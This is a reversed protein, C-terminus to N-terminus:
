GSDIWIGARYMTADENVQWFSLTAISVVYEFPLSCRERSEVSMFNQYADPYFWAVSCHHLGHGWVSRSASFPPDVAFAAFSPFSLFRVQFRILGSNSLESTRFARYTASAPPLLIMSSSIATIATISTRLCSPLCPCAALCRLSACTPPWFISPTASPFWLAFRPGFPTPRLFLHLAAFALPLLPIPPTSSEFWLSLFPVRRPAASVHCVSSRRALSNCFPRPLAPSAVRLSGCRGSHWRRRRRGGARAEAGRRQLRGVRDREAKRGRERWWARAAASAQASPPASEARRRRKGAAKQAQEADQAQARAEGQGRQVM